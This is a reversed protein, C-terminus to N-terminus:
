SKDSQNGTESKGNAMGGMNLQVRQIRCELIRKGDPVDLAHLINVSSGFIFNLEINAFVVKREADYEVTRIVGCPMPSNGFTVLLPEKPNFKEVFTKCADETVYIGKSQVGEALVVTKVNIM